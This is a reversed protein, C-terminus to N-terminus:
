RGEPTPHWIEIRVPQRQDTPADPPGCPGELSGGRSPVLQCDVVDWGFFNVLRFMLIDGDFRLQRPRYYGRMNHRPDIVFQVSTSDGADNVQATFSYELPRSRQWEERQPFVKMEGSWTGPALTGRRNAVMAAENTQEPSRAACGVSAAAVALPAVLTFVTVMTRRNLHM